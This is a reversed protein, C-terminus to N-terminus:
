QLLGKIEKSCSKVEGKSNIIKNGQEVYYQTPETGEIFYEMRGGSDTLMGNKCQFENQIVGEPM